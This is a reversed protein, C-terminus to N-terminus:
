IIKAEKFREFRLKSTVKNDPNYYWDHVVLALQLCVRKKYQLNIKRFWQQIKKAYKTKYPQNMPNKSIHGWDWPKDPNDLIFQWFKNVMKFFSIIKSNLKIKM